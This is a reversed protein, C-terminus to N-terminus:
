PQERRLDLTGGDRMTLRMWLASEGELKPWTKDKARSKEVKACATIYAGDGAQLVCVDLSIRKGDDGEWRMPDRASVPYVLWGLGILPSSIRRHIEGRQLVTVEHESGDAHRVRRWTRAPRDERASSCGSGHVRALEIREAGARLYAAGNEFVGACEGHVPHHWREVTQRPGADPDTPLPPPEPTKPAFMETQM